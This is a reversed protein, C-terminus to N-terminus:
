DKSIITCFLSKNFNTTKKVGTSRRSSEPLQPCQAFASLRQTTLFNPDALAISFALEIGQDKDSINARHECPHFLGIYVMCKQLALVKTWMMFHNSSLFFFFRVKRASESYQYLSLSLALSLSLPPPPSPPLSLDLWRVKFCVIASFAALAARAALSVSSM